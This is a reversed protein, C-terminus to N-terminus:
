SGRAPMAGRALMIIRTLHGPLLTNLVAAYVVAGATSAV